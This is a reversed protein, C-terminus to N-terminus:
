HRNTHAGSLELEGSLGALREARAEPQGGGSVGCALAGRVGAGDGEV